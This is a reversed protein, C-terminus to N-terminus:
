FKDCDAVVAWIGFDSTSAWMLRGKNFYGQATGNSWVGSASWVENAPSLLNTKLEITHDGFVFGDGFVMSKRAQDLKFQFKGPDYSTMKGDSKEMMGDWVTAQCYYVDGWDAVVIGNGLLLSLTLGVITKKINMVAGEVAESLLYSLLEM